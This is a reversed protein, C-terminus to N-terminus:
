NIIYPSTITYFNLLNEFVNNQAIYQKAIIDINAKEKWTYEDFKKDNFDAYISIKLENIAKNELYNIQKNIFRRADAIKRCKLNMDLKKSDQEYAWEKIGM